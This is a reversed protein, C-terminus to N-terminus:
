ERLEQWPIGWPSGDRLELGSDERLEYGHRFGLAEIVNPDNSTPIRDTGTLVLIGSRDITCPIGAANLQDVLSSPDQQSLSIVVTIGESTFTASDLPTDIQRDTYVIQAQGSLQEQRRPRLKINLLQTQDM